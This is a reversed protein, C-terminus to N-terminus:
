SRKRRRNAFAAGLALLGGTGVLAWPANAPVAVAPAARCNFTLSAQM